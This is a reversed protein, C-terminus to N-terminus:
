ERSNVVRNRYVHQTRNAFVDGVDFSGEVDFLLEKALDRFVYCRIQNAKRQDKKPVRICIDTM